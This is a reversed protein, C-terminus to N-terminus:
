TSQCAIEKAINGDDFVVEGKNNEGDYQNGENWDQDLKNSFLKSTLM